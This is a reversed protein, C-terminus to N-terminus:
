VAHCLGLPLSLTLLNQYKNKSSIHFTPSWFWAFLVSTHSLLVSITEERFIPDISGTVIGALACILVYAVCQLKLWRYNFTINSNYLKM